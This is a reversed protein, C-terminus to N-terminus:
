GGDGAGAEMTKLPIAQAEAKRAIAVLYLVDPRKANRFMEIEEGKDFRGILEDGWKMVLLRIERRSLARDSM